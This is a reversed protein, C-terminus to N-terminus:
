QTRKKFTEETIDMNIISNDVPNRVIGECSDCGGQVGNIGLMYEQHCHPCTRLAFVGILKRVNTPNVSSTM